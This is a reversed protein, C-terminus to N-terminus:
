SQSEDVDPVSEAIEMSRVGPMGAAHVKCALDYWYVQEGEIEFGQGYHNDM